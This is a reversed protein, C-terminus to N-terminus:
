EKLKKLENYLTILHNRCENSCPPNYVLIADFAHMQEDSPKWQPQPKLSKLWNCCWKITDEDEYFHRVTYELCHIVNEDEKSWEQKSQLVVRNKISKLWSLYRNYITINYAPAKNRDEKIEDIIGQLNREDEENWETPKLQIKDKLSKLWDICADLVTTSAYHKKATNLFYIIDKIRKEDDSEKLETATTIPFEPYPSCLIDMAIGYNQKKIANKADEIRNILEIDAKYNGNYTKVKEEIPLEKM